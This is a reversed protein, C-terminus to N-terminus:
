ALHDFMFNTLFYYITFIVVTHNRYYADWKQTYHWGLSDYNPWFQAQKRSWVNYINCIVERVIEKVSHPDLSFFSKLALYQKIYKWNARHVTGFGGKGIEKLNKFHKHDYYKIHKKSVAEKIWNILENSNDIETNYSM